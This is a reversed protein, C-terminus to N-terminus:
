QSITARAIEQADRDAECFPMDIWGGSSYLKTADACHESSAPM